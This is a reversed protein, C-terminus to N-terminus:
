FQTIVARCKHLRTKTGKAQKVRRKFWWEIPLPLCMSLWYSEGLDYSNLKTLLFTKTIVTASQRVRLHSVVDSCAHTLMKCIIHPIMRYPNMVFQYSTHAPVVADYWWFLSCFQLLAPLCDSWRWNSRVFLYICTLYVGQGQGSVFFFVVAGVPYSAAHAGSGTQIEHCVLRGAWLGYLRNYM